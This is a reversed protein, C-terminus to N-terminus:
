LWFGTLVKLWYKKTGIDKIKSIYTKFVRTRRFLLLRISQTFFVFEDIIAAAIRDYTECFLLLLLLLSYSQVVRSAASSCYLARSV